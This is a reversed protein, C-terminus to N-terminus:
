VDVVTNVSATPWTHRGMCKVYSTDDAHEKGIGLCGMELLTFLRAHSSPVTVWEPLTVDIGEEAGPGSVVKPWFKLRRPTTHAM